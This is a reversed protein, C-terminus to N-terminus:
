LNQYYVADAQAEMVNTAYWEAFVEVTWEGSRVLTYAQDINVKIYEEHTMPSAKSEKQKHKAEDIKKYECEFCKMNNM